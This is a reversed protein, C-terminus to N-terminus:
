VVPSKVRDRLSESKAGVGASVAKHCCRGRAVATAVAGRRPVLYFSAVCLMGGRTGCARGLWLARRRGDGGLLRECPSLGHADGVRRGRRAAAPGRGELGGADPHGARHAAHGHCPLEQARADYRRRAVPLQHLAAGAPHSPFPPPLTLVRRSREPVMNAPAPPRPLPIVCM